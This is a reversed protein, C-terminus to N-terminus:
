VLVMGGDVMLSQGTMYDSGSSALFISVGVMDDPRSPRGMLIDASFGDFAENDRETLGEDVFGKDILKWMDTAVVGPCIANVNIKHKGFARAAAQTLAVVAFKSASYHALPEYGQKGAISATNIIKGGKGQAIFHKAAEQTGILVGMANVDMVRHWDDETIDNFKKVHAIGANNFMADLKGNKEVTKAILETVSQRNTVDVTMGIAKGGAASIDEATKSATDANIDAVIVHAGARALGAAISQGIGQGAGTIIISRDKVSNNM